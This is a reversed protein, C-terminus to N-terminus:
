SSILQFDFSLISEIIVTKVNDLVGDEEWEQSNNIEITKLKDCNCIKLSNVNQLSYKKIIISQLNPYKKIVLDGKWGSFCNEGIEM